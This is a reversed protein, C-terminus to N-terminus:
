VHRRHMHVAMGDVTALEASSGLLPFGRNVWGMEGAQGERMFWVVAGMRRGLAPWM